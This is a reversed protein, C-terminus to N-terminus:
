VPHEFRRFSLSLFWSNELQGLNGQVMEKIRGNNGIGDKGVPQRFLEADQLQGHGGGFRDREQFDRFFELIRHLEKEMQREPQEVIELARLLREM